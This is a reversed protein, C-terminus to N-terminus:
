SAIEFLHDDSAYLPIRRKTSRQKARSDFAQEHIANREKSEAHLKPITAPAAQAPDTAGIVVRLTSVADDRSLALRHRGAARNPERDGARLVGAARLTKLGVGVYPRLRSETAWFALKGLQVDGIRGGADRQRRHRAEHTM